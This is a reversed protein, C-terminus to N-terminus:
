QESFLDRKLLLHFPVDQNSKNGDRAVIEEESRLVLQRFVSSVSQM